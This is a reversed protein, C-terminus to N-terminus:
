ILDQSNEDNVDTIIYAVHFSKFRLIKLANRITLKTLINASNILL